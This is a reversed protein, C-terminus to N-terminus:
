NEQIKPRLDFDKYEGWGAEERLNILYGHDLEEKSMELADDITRVFRAIHEQSKPGGWVDMIIRRDGSM